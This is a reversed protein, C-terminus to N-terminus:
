HIRWIAGVDVTWSTPLKISIPDTYLTSVQLITNTPASGIWKNLCNQRLIYREDVICKTVSLRVSLSFVNYHFYGIYQTTNRDIVSKVLLKV